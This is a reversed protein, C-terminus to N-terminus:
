PKGEKIKNIIQSISLLNCCIQGECDGQYGRLRKILAESEELTERAEALLCNLRANEAELRENEDLWAEYKQIASAWRQYRQDNKKYEGELEKIKTGLANNAKLLQCNADQMQMQGAKYGDREAELEKIRTELREIIEDREKCMTKWDITIQNMALRGM